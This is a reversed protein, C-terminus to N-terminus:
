PEANLVQGQQPGGGPVFGFMGPSDKPVVRRWRGDGDGSRSCIFQLYALERSNASLRALNM